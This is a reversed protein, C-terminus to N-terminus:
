NGAACLQEVRDFDAAASDLSNETSLTITALRSAADLGQEARRITLRLAERVSASGHCAAHRLTDATPLTSPMTQYEAAARLASCARRIGDTDVELDCSM